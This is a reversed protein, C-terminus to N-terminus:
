RKEVVFEVTKELGTAFEKVNVKWIGTEANVPIVFSLMYNGNEILGNGTFDFMTGSPKSVNYSFPIGGKLRGKEGEVYLMIEVTDGQLINGKKASASFKGPTDDLFMFIRGETPGLDFAFRNWNGDGQLNVVESATIDIVVEAMEKKVMFEAKQAIGKDKVKGWQGVYRGFERKNNVVVLYRAGKHEMINWIIDETNTIVPLEVTQKVLKYIEESQKSNFTMMGPIGEVKCIDDGIVTGGEEAFKLIQRYSKEPLAYTNPLVVMDYQALLKGDEFFDEDYLVDYPIGSLTLTDALWGPVHWTVNSYIQSAFSDVMAVKRPYNKWKMMLAGYPQWLTESMKTFEEKTEPIFLRGSKGMEGVLRGAEKWDRGKFKEEIDDILLAQGKDMEAHWGWFSMMSLPRSACVWVVQRFLDPPPTTAYPAAYGQVWHFQPMGSIKIDTGRTITALREQVSVAHEAPNQYVFWEQAIDTNKRYPKVPPRRLIPEIITKIDPREKKIEEMCIHNIIQENPGQTHWWLHFRYFNDKETDVVGGAPFWNEGLVTPKLRNNPLMNRGFRGYKGADEPDDKWKSLDIGFREMVTKCFAPSFDMRLLWESHIIAYKITDMNKFNNEVYEGAKRRAAERIYESFPNISYYRGDNSLIRDEDVGERPPIRIGMLSHTQLGLQTAWDVARPNTDRTINVGLDKFKKMEELNRSSQWALVPLRDTNRYPGVSVAFSSNVTRDGAVTAINIRYSGISLNEVPMRYIIEKEGNKELSFSEKQIETKVGEVSFTTQVDDLNETSLNRFTFRLPARVMDRSFVRVPMEYVPVVAPIDVVREQLNIKEIEEENLSRKFVYLEDMVGNIHTKLGGALNANGPMMFVFSDWIDEDMFSKEATVDIVKKGDLYVSSRNKGWTLSVFKWKTGEYLSEKSAGKKGFYSYILRGDPYVDLILPTNWGYGISFLTRNRGYPSADKGVAKESQINVWFTITGSEPNFTEPIAPINFIDSSRVQRGEIWTSPIHGNTSYRRAQEIMLADTYFSAKEESIVRLVVEIPIEIDKDEFKKGPIYPLTVFFRQWNSALVVENEQVVGNTIDELIIRVRENGKEGRLYLSGIYRIALPLNAKKTEIGGGAEAEVKLSLRSVLGKGERKCRAPGKVTFGGPYGDAKSSKLSLNNMTGGDFFGYDGSELFIGKGFRGEVYRPQDPEAKLFDRTYASSERNFNSQMFGRSGPLYVDTTGDMPLYILIDKEVTMSECSVALLGLFLIVVPLIYFAKKM